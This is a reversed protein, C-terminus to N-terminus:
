LFRALDYNFTGISSIILHLKPFTDISSVEHMKLNGYIHAPASGSPHLKDYENENFFNKQKLKHLFHQLSAEYKQPGVENCPERHGEPQVQVFATIFM